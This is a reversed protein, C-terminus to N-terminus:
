DVPSDLPRFYNPQHSLSLSLSLSLTYASLSDYTAGSLLFFSFFLDSALALPVM